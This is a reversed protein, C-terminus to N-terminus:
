KKSTSKSPKPQCEQWVNTKLILKVQAKEDETESGTAILLLQGSPDFAGATIPNDLKPYQRIRKKATADWVAM